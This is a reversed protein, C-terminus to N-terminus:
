EQPEITVDFQKLLEFTKRLTLEGSVLFNHVGNPQTLFQLQDSIDRDFEVNKGNYCKVPKGWVKRGTRSALEFAYFAEEEM